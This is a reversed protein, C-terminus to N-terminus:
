QNPALTLVGNSLSAAVVIANAEITFGENSDETWVYDARVGAHGNAILHEVVADADTSGAGEIAEALAMLSDYGLAIADLNDTLEDVGLHAMVAQRFTEGREPLEGTEPDAALLKPYMSSYVGEMGSAGVGEVVEDFSLGSPGIAPADWGLQERAKLAVIADGGFSAVILADPESDRLSRMQPGLDVAGSEHVEVKTVEIGADAASAEVADVISTGFTTNTAIIALSEWGVSEAYDIFSPGILNSTIQITFGTEAEERPLTLSSYAVYPVNAEAAIPAVAGTPGSGAPGVIGVVEDQDILESAAQAAKTPDNAEDKPLLTVCRGLVGGNGNIEELAVEAGITAKEGTDATVGTLPFITGILIEDSSDCEGSAEGDQGAPTDGGGDGDAEDSSDDGCAAALLALAVLVGAFRHFRRM